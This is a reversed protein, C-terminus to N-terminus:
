IGSLPDSAMMVKAKSYPDGVKVAAMGHAEHKSEKNMVIQETVRVSATVKASSNPGNRPHPDFAPRNIKVTHRQDSKDSEMQFPGHTVSTGMGRTRLDLTGNVSGECDVESTRLSATETSRRESQLLLHTYTPQIQVGSMAATCKDSAEDYYWHGNAKARRTKAPIGLIYNNLIVKPKALYGAGAKGMPKGHLDTNYWLGPVYLDPDAWAVKLTRSEHILNNLIIQENNKLDTEKGLYSFVDQWLKITPATSRLLQFGGQLMKRKAQRPSDSMTVWDARIGAENTAGLIDPEPDALWVADSETLWIDIGDELLLTIMRTRFFMLDYYDKQGFTMESPGKYRELYIHLQQGDGLHFRSMLNFSETDTAVFLTKSLIDSDPLKQLLNCIWSKTMNAYGINLLQLVVLGYKEYIKKAANRLGKFEHRVWEGPDFKSGDLTVSAGLEVPLSNSNVEYPNDSTTWGAAGHFDPTQFKVEEKRQLTVASTSIDPSAASGIKSSETMQFAFQSAGLDHVAAGISRAYSAVATKVGTPAYVAGHQLADLFDDGCVLGGARVKPAWNQLDKLAGKLTPDGDIYVFDLSANAIQRAGDESLARIVNVKHGYPGHLTNAMATDFIRKFEEDPKNLPRNWAALHQWPDVLIYQQLEQEKELVAKAFEGKWVGVEAGRKFGFENWLGAWTEARGKLWSSSNLSALVDGVNVVSVKPLDAFSHTASSLTADVSTKGLIGIINGTSLQANAMLCFPLLTM